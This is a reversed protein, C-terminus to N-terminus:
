CALFFVLAARALRASQRLLAIGALVCLERRKAAGPTAPVRILVRPSHRQRQCLSGVAQPVLVDALGFGSVLLRGPVMKKPSISGSSQWSVGASPFGPKAGPGRVRLGAPRPYFARPVHAEHFTVVRRTNPDGPPM